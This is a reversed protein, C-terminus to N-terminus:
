EKHLTNCDPLAVTLIMHVICLMNIIFSVLYKEYDINHIVLECATSIVSIVCVCVCVCVCVRLAPQSATNSRFLM